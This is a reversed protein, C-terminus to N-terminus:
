DTSNNIKEKVEPCVGVTWNSNCNVYRAVCANEYTQGDCGCVPNYEKIEKLTCVRHDPNCKDEPIRCFKGEQLQDNEDASQKMPDSAIMAHMAHAIFSFAGPYTKPFFHSFIADNGDESVSLTNSSELMHRRTVPAATPSVSPTVTPAASPTVTPTITPTLSPTVTPIATPTATPVVTPTNTPSDTPAYTPSFTPGESNSYYYYWSYGYQSYFSGYFSSNGYWSYYSADQVSNFEPNRELLDLGADLRQYIKGRLNDANSFYCLLVSCFGVFVASMSRM